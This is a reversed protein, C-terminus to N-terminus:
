RSRSGSRPADVGPPPTAASSGEERREGDPRLPLKKRSRVWAFALVAVVAMVAIGAVNIWGGSQWASFAVVALLLLGSMVVAIRRSSVWALVVVAIVAAVALGIWGGYLLIVVITAMLLLVSVMVAIKGSRHGARAACVALIFACTPPTVFLVVGETMMGVDTVDGLHSYAMALIGSFWGVPTLMVVAWAWAALVDAHAPQPKLTTM